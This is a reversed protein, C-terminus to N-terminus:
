QSFSRAINFPKESKWDIEKMKLFTKTVGLSWLKEFTFIRAQAKFQDVSHNSFLNLDLFGSKFNENWKYTSALLFTTQRVFPLLNVAELNEVNMKDWHPFRKSRRVEVYVTPGRIKACVSRTFPMMDREFNYKEICKKRSTLSLNRIIMERGVFFGFISDPHCNNSLVKMKSPWFWCGGKGQLKACDNKFCLRGFGSSRPIRYNGHPSLRQRDEDFGSLLLAM